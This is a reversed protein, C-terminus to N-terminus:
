QHKEFLPSIQSLADRWWKVLWSDARSSNVLLMLREKPWMIGQVTLTTVKKALAPNLTLQRKPLVAWGVNRAALSLAWSGSNVEWSEDSLIIPAPSEPDRATVVLQRHKRLDDVTVISQHKLPHDHGIVVSVPISTIEYAECDFSSADSFVVALSMETHKFFWNVDFANLSEIQIKLEPRQRALKAMIDMIVGTGLSHDLGIHLNLPADAWLQLSKESFREYEAIVRKAYPLLQEGKETLKPKHERRFLTYGLEAETNAIHTSIVSQARGLQRAAASFSGEQAAFVYSRLADIDISM